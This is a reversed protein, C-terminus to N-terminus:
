VFAEADAVRLGAFVTENLAFGFYKGTGSVVNVYV